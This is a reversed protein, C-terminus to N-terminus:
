SECELRYSIEQLRVYYQYYLPLIIIREIFEYVYMILSIVSGYTINAKSMILIISFIFVVMSITTVIFYNITELDSLEINISMFKKFYRNTISIDRTELKNVLKELEDNYEGNLDYNKKSTIGYVLIVVAIITTCLLSIKLNITAIILLVGLLGIFSNIIEPFSNEFFEVLENILSIRASIRSLDSGKKNEEDVLSTAVSTYIESYARSDYARRISGILVTLISLGGLMIIGTYTSKLLDNIAYGIFLPYLLNSVLEIIVLSMTIGIKGKNALFISKLTYKSEM